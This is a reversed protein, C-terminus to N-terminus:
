SSVKVADDVTGNARYFEDRAYDLLSDLEPDWETAVMDELLSILESDVVGSRSFEFLPGEVGLSLDSALERASDADLAMAAEHVLPASVDAGSLAYGTWTTGYVVYIEGLSFPESPVPQDPVSIDHDYYGVTMHPLYDYASANHIGVSRLHEELDDHLAHLDASEVKAHLVSEANRFIGWDSFRASIPSWSAAFDYVAQHLTEFDVDAVTGLFLVTIHMDDRESWEAAADAVSDM